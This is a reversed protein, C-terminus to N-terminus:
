KESENITMAKDASTTFIASPKSVFGSIEGGGSDINGLFILWCDTPAPVMSTEVSIVFKDFDIPAAGEM